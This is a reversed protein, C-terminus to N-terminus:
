RAAWRGDDRRDVPAPGLVPSGLAAVPVPNALVAHGSPCEQRAAVGTSSPNRGLGADYDPPCSPDIRGASQRRNAPWQKRPTPVAFARATARSGRRRARPERVADKFAILHEPQKTATTTCPSDVEEAEGTVLASSDAQLRARILAVKSRTSRSTCNKLPSCQLLRCNWSPTSCSASECGPCSGESRFAPYM